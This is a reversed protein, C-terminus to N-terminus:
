FLPYLIPALASTQAFIALFGILLSIAVAPMLWWLKNKWLFSFLESIIKIKEM